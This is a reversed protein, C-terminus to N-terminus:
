RSPAPQTLQSVYSACQELLFESGERAGDRGSITDSLQRIDVRTRGPGVPNFTMEMETDGSEFRTTMVLRQRPIVDVYTGELADHPQGDDGDLRMSWAGGERVDLHVSGPVANFWAGYHAPDTWARWVTDLDAHMERSVVFDYVPEYTLIAVGEGVMSTSALRFRKTDDASTFLRKGSGLVIPFLMVRLEDVLDHELLGRVLTASGHVVIDGAFRHKLQEINHELDGRLVETNHWDAGALTNSVVFKPLSNFLDAFEGTMHPWAVAMGEYTTRGFLLADSNRTENLKFADGEPGRRVRFTWGAHVFDEGGGPTEIVGDLTVYETVVLRGM